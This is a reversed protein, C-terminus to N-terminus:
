QSEKTRYHTVFDEYANVVDSFAQSEIINLLINNAREYSKKLNKSVVMMQLEQVAETQLKIRTFAKSYLTFLPEGFKIYNYFGMEEVNEDHLANLEEMTKVDDYSIM